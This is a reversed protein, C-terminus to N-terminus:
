AGIVSTFDRFPGIMQKGAYSKFNELELYTVPM